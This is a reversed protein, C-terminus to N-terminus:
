RSIFFPLQEVGALRAYTFLQGKHHIEHDKSMDLLASGPMKMGKFDVIADLQEDTILDLAAETQETHEKAIAKLEDITGANKAPESPPTFSGNKVISAFMATSGTIHLTLEAVSMGKEWPKFNLQDNPIVDLLALLAKRHSLWGAKYAQIKSM